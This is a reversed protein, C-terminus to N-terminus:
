TLCSNRSRRCSCALIPTFEDCNVWWCWQRELEIRFIGTWVGPECKNVLRVLFNYKFHFSRLWHAIKHTRALTDKLLVWVDLDLNEEVVLQVTLYTDSILRSVMPIIYSSYFAIASSLNKTWSAGTGSPASRAAIVLEPSFFMTFSNFLSKLETVFALM